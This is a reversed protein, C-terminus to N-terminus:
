VRGVPFLVLWEGYDESRSRGAFRLDDFHFLFAEIILKRIRQRHEINRALVLDQDEQRHVNVQLSAVNIERNQALEVHHDRRGAENELRQLGGLEGKRDANWLEKRAQLIQKQQLDARM